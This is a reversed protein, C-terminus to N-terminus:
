NKALWYAATVLKNQVEFYVMIYVQHTTHIGVGQNTPWLKHKATTHSDEGM